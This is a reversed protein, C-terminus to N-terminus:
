ALVQDIPTAVAAISWTKRLGVEGCERPFSSDAVDDHGAACGLDFRVLGDEGAGRGRVRGGAKAELWQEEEVGSRVRQLGILLTFVEDL